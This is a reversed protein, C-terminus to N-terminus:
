RSLLHPHGSITGDMRRQTFASRRKSGGHGRIRSAVSCPGITCGLLPTCSVCHYLISSRGRSRECDGGLSWSRSRGASTALPEGPSRGRGSRGAGPM